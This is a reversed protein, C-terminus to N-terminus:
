FGSTIGLFVLALFVMLIVLGSLFLPPETKAKVAAILGLVWLVIAGVFVVPLIYHFLNNQLNLLTVALSSELPLNVGVIAMVFPMIALIVCVLSGYFWPNYKRM